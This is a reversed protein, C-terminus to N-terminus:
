ILVSNLTMASNQTAHAQRNGVISASKILQVIGHPNVLFTATGLKSEYNKLLDTLWCDKFTRIRRQQNSCM